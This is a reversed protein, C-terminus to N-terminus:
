LVERLLYDAQRLVLAVITLTPNEAGSSAFLSGDSVFLNSVDHCQGFSNTVGDQPEESMRATGLNHTASAPIGTHSELAGLSAYLAKAQAFFHERMADSQPHEDVHVRAVPFGHADKLDPSLTVRNDARPLEEGVMLMGALHDYHEMFSAYDAGWGTPNILMALSVPSIGAAEMLYGGAFGRSSDHRAEDFITGPTVIGRHMNVPKPMRAYLMAGIHRMYHRGVHGHTNALGDPFTASSSQLLLRATEIANGAVCVYAANQRTERGNKDRYIVANVLGNTDHEISLAMCESRLDLKGTAEAKPIESALTSWKANIKCGQNCFGMQICGPRDDRMDSNIAIHANSINQYGMRQGGAHLVKYNNTAPHPAIGHTGTVGMLAEARDYYPAIEDYTIPWDMLSAGDIPGYHTLPAFEHPQMRYALGNWHLTSGGLAKVIWAPMNPTFQAAAYTGTAERPDLWSLQGYAKLDDQHWEGAEIRPGAELLVVHKGAECLARALTGGGAGSGIIVISPETLEIM